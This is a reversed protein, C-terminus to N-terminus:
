FRFGIGTNLIGKTGFGAELSWYVKRGLQMGVATLQGAPLYTTKRTGLPEHDQDHHDIEMGLGIGSYLTIIDRRLYTFRTDVMLYAQRHGYLTEKGNYYYRHLNASAGATAGVELWPLVAFHYGLNFTPLLIDAHHCTQLYDLPYGDGEPGCGCTYAGTFIHLPLPDGATLEFTHRYDPMEIASVLLCGLLMALTLFYRRM